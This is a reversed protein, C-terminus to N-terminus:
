VIILEIKGLGDIEGIMTDGKVVAGVGAPTGTFILDGAKLTFYTSLNAITEDISWILHSINSTQKVDGNVTLQINANDINPLHEKAVIDGIPASYDFAKGIEWPRGGQKMQNQLDRRTMDLGIAYGFIHEHANEVAINQGEKGIAVVLELEFHLNQTLTPYPLKATEGTKVPIISQSDNAKCFFFPPERDPDSGMERAHDAYNRGVCYVRRVPFQQESDKIALGVIPMPPFIYNM